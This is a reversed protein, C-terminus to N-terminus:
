GLNNEWAGPDTLWYELEEETAPELERIVITKGFIKEFIEPFDRKLEARLSEYFLDWEILAMRRPKKGQVAPILAGTRMGVPINLRREETMRRVISSLRLAATHPIIPFERHIKRVIAFASREESRDLERQWRSASRERVSESEDALQALAWLHWERLQAVFAPNVERPSLLAFGPKLLDQLSSFRGSESSPLCVDEDDFMKSSDSQMYFLVKSDKSEAFVSVAGGESLIRVVLQKIM